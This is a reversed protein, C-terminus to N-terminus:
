LLLTQVPNSRTKRLAEARDPRASRLRGPEFGHMDVGFEWLGIERLFKAAAELSFLRVEGRTNALMREDTAIKIVIAYGGCKGVLGMSKVTGTSVLERLTTEKITQMLLDSNQRLRLATM